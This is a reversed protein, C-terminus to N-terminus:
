LSLSKELAHGELAKVVSTVLEENIIPSSETLELKGDKKELIIKPIDAPGFEKFFSVEFTSPSDPYNIITAWLSVSNYAVSIMFLRAM